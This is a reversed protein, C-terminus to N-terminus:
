IKIVIEPAQRNIDPNGIFVENSLNGAQTGIASNEIRNEKIENLTNVQVAPQVCQTGQPPSNDRAFSIQVTFIAAFIFMAAIFSYIKKM